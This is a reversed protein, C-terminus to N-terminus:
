GSLNSGMHTVLTDEKEVLHSIESQLECAKAVRSYLEDDYEKGFLINEKISAEVLSAAAM